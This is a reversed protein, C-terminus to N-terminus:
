PSLAKTLSDMEFDQHFGSPVTRFSQKAISSSFATLFHQFTRTAGRLMEGLFEQSSPSEPIHQLFNEWPSPTMNGLLFFSLGQPSLSLSSQELRKAIMQGGLTSGELVYLVGLTEPLSASPPFQLSGENFSSQGLDRLASILLPARPPTRYTPLIRPLIDRLTNDLPSHALLLAELARVLATKTLDKDLLQSMIPLSEIHRHLEATERSLFSIQPSRTM